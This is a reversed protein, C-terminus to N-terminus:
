FLPWLRNLALAATVASLALVELVPPRSRGIHPQRLDRSYRPTRRLAVVVAVGLYALASVIVATGGIPATKLMATAVVLYGLVTRAWAM